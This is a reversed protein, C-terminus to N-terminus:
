PEISIEGKFLLKQGPQLRVLQGHQYQLLRGKYLRDTNEIILRLEQQNSTSKFRITELEDAMAAAIGARGYWLRFPLIDYDGTYEEPFLGNASGAVDWQRYQASLM